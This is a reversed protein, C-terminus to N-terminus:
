VQAFREIAEIVRVALDPSFDDASQMQAMQEVLADEDALAWGLSLIQKASKDAGLWAVCMIDDTMGPSRAGERAFTASQQMIDFVDAQVAATAPTCNGAFARVLALTADAASLGVPRRRTIIM